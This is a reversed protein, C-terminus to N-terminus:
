AGRLPFYFISCPKTQLVSKRDLPMLREEGSVAVLPEAYPTMGAWTQSQFGLGEWWGLPIVSPLVSAPFTPSRNRGGAKQVHSESQAMAAEGECVLSFTCAVM